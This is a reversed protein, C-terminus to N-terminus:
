GLHLLAAFAKVATAVAATVLAGAAAEIVRDRLPRRGTRRQQPRTRRKRHSM